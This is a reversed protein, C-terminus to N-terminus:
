GNELVAYKSPESHRSKRGWDLAGSKLEYVLAVLLIGIFIAVGVYGAWGVEEFAVAWAVIFITELDFIVFFIAVLYFEISLRMNEAEGVSVIGSEYPVNQAGGHRAKSGFFWSVILTAALVVGVVLTYIVFPWIDSTTEEVGMFEADGLLLFLATELRRWL